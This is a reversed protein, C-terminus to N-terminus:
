LWSAWLASYKLVASRYNLVMMFCSFKDKIGIRFHNYIIKGCKGTCPGIYSGTSDRKGGGTQDEESWQFVEESEAQEGHVAAGVSMLWHIVSVKIIPSLTSLLVYSLM